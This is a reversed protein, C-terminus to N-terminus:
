IRKTGMDPDTSINWSETGIIKGTNFPNFEHLTTYEDGALLVRALGVYEENM